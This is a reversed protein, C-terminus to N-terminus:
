VSNWPNGCEFCYLAGEVQISPTGCQPCVQALAAGCYVCYKWDALGENKCALCLKTEATSRAMFSSSMGVQRSFRGPYLLAQDFADVKRTTAIVAMPPHYDLGDMEVLLQKLWQEREQRTALHELADLDDLLLVCPSVVKAQQFVYRIMNRGRGADGSNKLVTYEDTALELDEISVAGSDLDALIEVLTSFSLSVLPVVAEGATARVLLTRDTCPHGVLLVGLLYAGKSKQFVQPRRIFEVVERLGHKATDLGQIDPFTVAPREVRRLIGRPARRNLSVVSQERIRSHILQDIYSTYAAGIVETMSAPLAGAPPMLLVLLSQIRPHRLVGLLLHKPFLLSSNWQSAYAFAWEICSLAETSLLLENEESRGNRLEGFTEVARARMVRIDLGMSNLVKAVEDDAHAIIGLFLHEPYVEPAQMRAAEQHALRIDAQVSPALRDFDFTYSHLQTIIANM